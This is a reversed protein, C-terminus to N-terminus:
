YHDFDLFEPELYNEIVEDEGSTKLGDFGIGLM